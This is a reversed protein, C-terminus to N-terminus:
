QEFNRILIKANRKRRGRPIEERPFGDPKNEEGKTNPCTQVVNRALYYPWGALFIAFKHFSLVEPM